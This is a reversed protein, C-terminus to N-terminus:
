GARRHRAQESLEGLQRLWEPSLGQHEPTAEDAREPRADQPALGLMALLETLDAADSANAAVALVARRRQAPAPKGIVPRCPQWLRDGDM